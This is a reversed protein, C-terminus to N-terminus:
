SRPHDAVEQRSCLWLVKSQIKDIIHCQNEFHMYLFSIRITVAALLLNERLVQEVM